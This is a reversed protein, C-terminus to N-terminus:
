LEVLLSNVMPGIDSVQVESQYWWLLKGVGKLYVGIM